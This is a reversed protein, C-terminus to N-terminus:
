FVFLFAGFSGVKDSSELFKTCFLVGVIVTMSGGGKVKVGM